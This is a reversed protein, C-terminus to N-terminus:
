FSFVVISSKEGFQFFYDFKSNLYSFLNLNHMSGGPAPFKYEAGNCEYRWTETGDFIKLNKKMAIQTYHLPTCIKPGPPILAYNLSKKM